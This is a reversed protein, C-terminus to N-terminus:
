QEEECENFNKIVYPRSAALLAYVEQRCRCDTLVPLPTHSTIALAAGTPDDVYTRTDMSPSTKRDETPVTPPMPGTM